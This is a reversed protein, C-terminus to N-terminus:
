ERTLKIVIGYTEELYNCCKQCDEEDSFFSEGWVDRKAGFSKLIKIYDELKIGIYEAICIDDNNALITCVYYSENITEAPFFIM